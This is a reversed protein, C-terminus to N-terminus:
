WCDFHSCGLGYWALGEELSDSPNGTQRDCSERHAACAFIMVLGGTRTPEVAISNGGGLGWGSQHGVGVVLQSRFLGVDDFVFPGLGSVDALVGVGFIRAGIKTAPAIGFEVDGFLFKRAITSPGTEVVCDSVCHTLFRVCVSPTRFDEAGM